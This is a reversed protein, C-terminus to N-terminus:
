LTLLVAIFLTASTFLGVIPADSSTSTWAEVKRATSNGIPEMNYPDFSSVDNTDWGSEGGSIPSTSSYQIPGPTASPTLTATVTPPNTPTPTIDYDDDDISLGYASSSFAGASTGTSSSLSLSSPPGPTPSVTLTPTAPPPTVTPVMYDLVDIEAYGNKVVVMVLFLLLLVKM